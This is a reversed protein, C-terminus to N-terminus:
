ATEASLYLTNPSMDIDGPWTVTGHDIRAALFRSLDSLPEFFPYRLYPKMDFDVCRGDAFTVTIHHDRHAVVAIADPTIM